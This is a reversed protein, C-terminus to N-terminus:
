VGPQERDPLGQDGGLVLAEGRPLVADGIPLEPQALLYAVSHTADFGDGTDAVFDFWLDEGLSHDNVRKPFPYQLERKDLYAGFQQALAVRAGTAALLVPGLWRVPGRRRYGLEEPELSHPRPRPLSDTV